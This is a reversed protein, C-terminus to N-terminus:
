NKKLETKQTIKNKSSTTEHQNYWPHGTRHHLVHDSVKNSKIEGKARKGRNEMVVKQTYRSLFPM